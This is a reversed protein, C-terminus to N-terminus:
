SGADRFYTELAARVKARARHLLVRQNTESLELANRVEESSWGEVDRLEIVRRQNPPLTAVAAEVVALTEAAGVRSEPDEDWAVPPSAWAGAQPDGPPRFRAPDVAPEDREVEGALTSFPVSRHERVGIGRAINILIRYLWTKFSSRGEFGDIGRIVAVWTDAVAEAAASPTSVFTRALRLLPGSYRDVIWTFAADDGDRLAAVLTADDAFDRPGPM